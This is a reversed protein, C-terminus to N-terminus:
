GPSVSGHHEVRVSLLPTWMPPCPLQPYQEESQPGVTVVGLTGVPVVGVPDVPVLVM